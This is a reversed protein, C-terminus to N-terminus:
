HATYHPNISDSPFGYNVFGRLKERSGLFSLCGLLSFLFVLFPFISITSDFMWHTQSALLGLILAPKVYSVEPPLPAHIARVIIGGVFILWGALGIFGWGLWIELFANHTSMSGKTDFGTMFGYRYKETKFNDIGSGFFYHNYKLMQLGTGLLDTRGLTGIKDARSPHITREVAGRGFFGIGALSV